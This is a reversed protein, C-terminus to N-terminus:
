EAERPHPRRLHPEIRSTAVSSTSTTVASDFSEDGEGGAASSSTGGGGAEKTRGEVAQPRKERIHIRGTVKNRVLVCEPGAAGAQAIHAAKDQEKEKEADVRIIRDYSKNPARGYRLFFCWDLLRVFWYTLFFVLTVVIVALFVAWLNKRWKQLRSPTTPPLPADHPHQFKLDRPHAVGPGYAAFPDM